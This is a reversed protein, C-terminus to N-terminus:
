PQPVAREKGFIIDAFGPSDVNRANSRPASLPLAM